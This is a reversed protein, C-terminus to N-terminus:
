LLGVSDLQSNPQRQSGQPRPRWGNTYVQFNQQIAQHADCIVPYPTHAHKHMYIIYTCCQVLLRGAPPVLEIWQPMVLVGVPARLGLLGDSDADYLLGTAVRILLDCLTSADMPPQKWQVGDGQVVGLLQFHNANFGNRTAASEHKGTALNVHTDAYIGTHWLIITHRETVHPTAAHVDVLGLHGITGERAGDKPRRRVTIINHDILKAMVCRTVEDTFVGREDTNHANGYMYEVYEDFSLDPRGDELSHPVFSRRYAVNQLLEDRVQRRLAMSGPYGQPGYVPTGIALFFCNGLFPPNYTVLKIGAQDARAMRYSVSPGHPLFSM